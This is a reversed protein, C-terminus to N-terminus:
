HQLKLVSFFGSIFQLFECIVLYLINRLIYSKTKVIEAIDYCLKRQIVHRIRAFTLRFIVRCSYATYIYIYIGCCPKKAYRSIVRRRMHFSLLINRRQSTVLIAGTRYIIQPDIRPIASLFNYILASRTKFREEEIVAM